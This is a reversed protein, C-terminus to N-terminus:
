LRSLKRIFFKHGEYDTAVLKGEELLRNVLAFSTGTKSLFTNVADERMPHVSTISLLDDEADGTSAFANGEYGILYEVQNIKESFINYAKNIGLEDAAHVWEEAPPRIPISIYAIDPELKSIFNATEYLDDESDNTNQLLMTETVLKGKFESAFIKAGDLINQLRLLGHPKNISHWKKLSVTDFKLSIWDAKVLDDRVSKNGILSSNTIVAIKPGFCKLEEIETGLNIDLTPEGDPVFTLYDIPINQERSLRVKTKVANVIDSITYFQERKIQM